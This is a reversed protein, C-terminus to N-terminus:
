IKRIRRNFVRAQEQTYLCPEVTIRVFYASTAETCKCTEDGFPILKNQKYKKNTDVSFTTPLLGTRMVCIYNTSQMFSFDLYGHKQMLQSLQHLHDGRKQDGRWFIADSSVVRLGQTWDVDDYSIWKLNIETNDEGKRSSIGLLLRM